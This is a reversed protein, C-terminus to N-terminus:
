RLSTPAPVASQSTTATAALLWDGLRMSLRTTSRRILTFFCIASESLLLLPAYPNDSTDVRWVLWLWLVVIAVQELRDMVEPRQWFPPKAIATASM